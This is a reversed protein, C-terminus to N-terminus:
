ALQALISAVFVPVLINDLGFIGVMELMTATLPLLLTILWANSLGVPAVLLLGIGTILVSTIFFATSGEVSKTQDFITFRHRRRGSTGVMAAVSDAFGLHLIAISFAWVPPNLAATVAIGIAFYMEGHSVRDVKRLHKFYGHRKVFIAALGSVLSLVIVTTYSTFWPWSAAAVANCVHTLKRGAEPSIIHRKILSDSLVLIGFVTLYSALVFLM